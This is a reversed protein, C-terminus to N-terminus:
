AGGETAGSTTTEADEDDKKANRQREIAQMTMMAGINIDRV